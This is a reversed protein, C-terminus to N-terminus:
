KETAQKRLMKFNESGRAKYLEPITVNFREAAESNAAKKQMGPNDSLLREAYLAAFMADNQRYRKARPNPPRGTGKRQVIELRYDSKGNPDSLEALLKLLSGIEVNLEVDSIALLTRDNLDRLYEAVEAIANEERRSGELVLRAKRRLDTM